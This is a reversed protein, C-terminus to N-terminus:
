TRRRGRHKEGSADDSSQGDPRCEPDCNILTPAGDSKCGHEVATNASQALSLRSPRLRSDTGDESRALVLQGRISRSGRESLQTGVRYSVHVMLRRWGDPANSEPMDPATQYRVGSRRRSPAPPPPSLQGLHSRCFLSQWYNDPQRAPLRIAIDSHCLKDGCKYLGRRRLSYLARVRGRRPSHRTECSDDM